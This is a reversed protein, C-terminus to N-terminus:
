FDRKRRGGSDKDGGPTPVDGFALKREERTAVPARILSAIAFDVIGADHLLTEAAGLAAVPDDFAVAIYWVTGKRGSV